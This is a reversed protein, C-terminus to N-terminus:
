EYFREFQTKKPPEERSKVDKKWSFAAHFGIEDCSLDLQILKVRSSNAEGM